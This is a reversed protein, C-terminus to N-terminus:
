VGKLTIWIQNIKEESLVNRFFDFHHNSYIHANYISIVKPNDSLLEILNKTAPFFTYKEFHHKIIEPKYLYNILQYTYEIKCSTKPIVFNDIIMFTGEQPVIFEFNDNNKLVKHMFPTTSVVIPCTGSSLLYDARLDSYAEVWKKQKLLMNKIALLKNENLHDISNFLYQGTLLIAERANNLMVIKQPLITPDFILKWSSSIKKNGLLKKNLGLGYISCYYPISYNNDPDFYKNLLFEDIQNWITIKTKDLKQIINLKILLEVTFDSPLILDYGEGKTANLKILLEENSDFYSMYVKIGTEKEFQKIIEPDIMDTWTIVNISREYQLLRSVHPLMLYLTIVILWFVTIAIQSRFKNKITFM